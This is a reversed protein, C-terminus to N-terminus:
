LGDAVVPWGCGCPWDCGCVVRWECGCALECTMDCGCDVRLWLGGCVCALRWEDVVHREGNAVM